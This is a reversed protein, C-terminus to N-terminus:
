ETEKEGVFYKIVGQENAIGEMTLVDGTKMPNLSYEMKTGDTTMIRVKIGNLVTEQDFSPAYQFTIGHEALETKLEVLGMRTTENDITISFPTAETAVDISQANIMSSLGLVLAFLFIVKKM